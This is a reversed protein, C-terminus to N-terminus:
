HWDTLNGFSHERRYDDEPQENCWPEDSAGERRRWGSMLEGAHQSDNENETEGAHTM